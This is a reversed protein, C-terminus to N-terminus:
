KRVWKKEGRAGGRGPIEAVFFPGPPGEEYKMRPIIMGAAIIDIIGCNHKKTL